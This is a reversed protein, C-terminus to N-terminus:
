VIVLFTLCNVALVCIVEAQKGCYQPGSKESMRM